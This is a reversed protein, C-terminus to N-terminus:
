RPRARIEHFDKRGVAYTSRIEDSLHRSWEWFNTKHNRAPYTKRIHPFINFCSNQSNAEPAGIQSIKPSAISSCLEDFLHCFKGLKDCSSLRLRPSLMPSM